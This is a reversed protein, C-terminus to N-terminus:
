IRLLHGHAKTTKNSQGEHLCKNIVLLANSSCMYLYSTKTETSKRSPFTQGVCTIKEREGGGKKRLLKVLRGQLKRTGM